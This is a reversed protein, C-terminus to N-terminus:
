FPRRPCWWRFLRFLHVLQICSRVCVRVYVIKKPELQNFHQKYIVEVCEVPATPLRLTAVSATSAAMPLLLAAVRVAGTISAIRDAIPGLRGLAGDVTSLQM